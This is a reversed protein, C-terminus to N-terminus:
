RGALAGRQEAALCGQPQGACARPWDFSSEAQGSADYFSIRAQEASFEVASFGPRAVAFLTDAHAASDLANVRQGGGGSIVWAPEGPRVILQQNHDHGSLFLDVGSRQLMPLLDEQLQQNQGDPGHDRLPHHAAVVRWVPAPGPASFAQQIFAAQQLLSERSAASDLFVVRVLPREGARGFDRTYFRAPMQWRGSGKKERSYALEVDASKPYDHNGLVAFFPVHSLWAGWYVREFRLAWARDSTDSLPAGYFNDGLLMVLNIGGLAEAAREMGRGVRWQQLDGSGQDGLALLAVRDAPLGSLPAYPQLPANLWVFAAAMALLSLVLLGGGGIRWVARWRRGMSRARARDTHVTPTGPFESM